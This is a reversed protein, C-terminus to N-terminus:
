TQLYFLTPASFIFPHAILTFELKKALTPFEAQKESQKGASVVKCLKCPHEGDFTKVLAEKLPASKSYSVAMGVWAASQLIAWHLGLSCSLTAVLLFESVRRM